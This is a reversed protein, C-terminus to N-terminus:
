VVIDAAAIGTLDKVGTLEIVNTYGTGDVDTVLYVKSGVVGVFFEITGDLAINAATLLNSLAAFTASSELYNSGDVGAVGLSITDSGTTFDSIYDTIAGSTTSLDLSSFVFKDAGDGGTMSDVGA